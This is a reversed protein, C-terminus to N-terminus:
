LRTRLTAPKPPLPTTKCNESTHYFNRLKGLIKHELCPLNGELYKQSCADDLTIDSVKSLGRINKLYFNQRCQTPLVKTIGGSPNHAFKSTILHPLPPDLIKLVKTSFRTSHLPGHARALIPTATHISSNVTSTKYINFM